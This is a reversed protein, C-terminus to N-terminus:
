MWFRGAICVKHLQNGIMASPKVRDGLRFVPLALVLPKQRRCAPSRAPRSFRRPFCALYDVFCGLDRIGSMHRDSLCYFTMVIAFEGRLGTLGISAASANNLGAFFFASGATSRGVSGFVFSSTESLISLSTREKKWSSPGPQCSRILSINRAAIFFLSQGTAGDQGSRTTTTIGFASCRSRRLPTTWTRKAKKAIPLQATKALRACAM